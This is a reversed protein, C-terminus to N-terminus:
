GTGTRGFREHLMTQEHEHQLWGQSVGITIESGVLFWFVQASEDIITVIIFRAPGRTWIGFIFLSFFPGIALLLVM